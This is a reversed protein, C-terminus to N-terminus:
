CFSVLCQPTPNQLPRNTKRENYADSNMSYFEDDVM